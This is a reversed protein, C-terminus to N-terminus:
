IVLLDKPASTLMEYGNETVRIVDEIRVGGLDPDYVGPEITFIMNEELTLDSKSSIKGGDHVSLGLGHGLSHIFKGGFESSEIYERAAQDVESAAVGAQIVELGRNQAELVTEYMKKHVRNVEGIFVTRTIDSCYKNYRAGFDMLAVDGRRLVAEGASYHPEASNRGFAVVPSFSPETAGKKQLRYSIEAAVEYERVGESLFDPIEEAVESAIECAKRLWEVEVDEKILRAREFAESVDTIQVDPFLDKLDMMNKASLGSANIGLNDIGRLLEELHNDREEGSTFTRVEADTKRASTEELTSVVLDMEGDPWILSACGEFLGSTARTVYSFSLDIMPETGNILIIAEVEDSAHSYVSRVRDRM